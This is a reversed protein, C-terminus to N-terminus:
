HSPRGEYELSDDEYGERGRSGSQLGRVYPRTSDHQVHHEHPRVRKLPRLILRVVLLQLLHDLHSSLTSPLTPFRVLSPLLTSNGSGEENRHGRSDLADQM